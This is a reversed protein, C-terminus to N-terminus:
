NHVSKYIINFESHINFIVGLLIPHMFQVHPKINGEFLTVQWLYIFYPDM